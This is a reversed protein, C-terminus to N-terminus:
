GQCVVTSLCRLASGDDKDAFAVGKIREERCMVLHSYEKLHEVDKMAEVLLKIAAESIDQSSDFGILPAAWMWCRLSRTICSVQDALLNDASRDAVDSAEKCAAFASPCLEFEGGVKQLSGM